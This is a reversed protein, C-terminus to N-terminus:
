GEFYEEFRWVIRLLFEFIRNKQCNVEGLSDGLFSNFAPIGYNDSITHVLIYIVHYLLAQRQSQNNSECFSGIM